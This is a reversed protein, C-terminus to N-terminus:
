RHKSKSESKSKSKSKSKKINPNGEKSASAHATQEVFLAREEEPLDRIAINAAAAVNNLTTRAKELLEEIVSVKNEVSLVAVDDGNRRM